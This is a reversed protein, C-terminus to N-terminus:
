TRGYAGGRVKVHGRQWPTDLACSVAARQGGSLDPAGELREEEKGRNKGDAGGQETSSVGSGGLRGM